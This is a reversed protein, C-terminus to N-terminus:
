LVYMKIDNKSCIKHHWFHKQWRPPTEEKVSWKHTGGGMRWESNTNTTYTPRTLMQLGNEGRKSRITLWIIDNGDMVNM